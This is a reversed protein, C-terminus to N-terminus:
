HHSVADAILSRGSTAAVKMQLIAACHWHRAGNAGRVGAGIGQAARLARCRQRCSLCASPVGPEGSQPTLDGRHAHPPAAPKPKFLPFMQHPRPEAWSVHSWAEGTRCMKICARDLATASLTPLGSCTHPQPQPAACICGRGGGLPPQAEGRHSISHQRRMVSCSEGVRLRGQVIRSFVCGM